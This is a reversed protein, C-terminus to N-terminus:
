KLVLAVRKSDPSFVVDGVEFKSPYEFDLKGNSDLSEIVVVEKDNDDNYWKYFVKKNDSSILWSPGSYYGVSVDYIYGGYTSTPIVTLKKSESSLPPPQSPIIEFNLLQTSYFLIGITVLVAIILFILTYKWNIKLQNSIM